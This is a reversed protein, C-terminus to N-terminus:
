GRGGRHCLVARRERRGGDPAVLHRSPFIGGDKGHHNASHLRPEAVVDAGQRCRSFDDARAVPPNPVYGRSGVDVGRSLHSYSIIPKTMSSPCRVITIPVLPALKRGM